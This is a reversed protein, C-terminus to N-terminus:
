HIWHMESRDTKREASPFPGPQGPHYQQQPLVQMVKYVYMSWVVLIGVLKTYSTSILNHLLEEMLLLVAQAPPSCLCPRRKQNRWRPSRLPRCSDARSRASPCAQVRLPLTARVGVQPNGFFDPTGKRPSGFGIILIVHSDGFILSGLIAGM